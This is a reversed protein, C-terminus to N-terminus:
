GGPDLRERVEPVVHDGGLRQDAPQRRATLGPLQQDLVEGLVRRERRVHAPEGVVDGALPVADVKGRLTTRRHDRGVEVHVPGDMGPEGRRDRVPDPRDPPDVLRLVLDIQGQREALAVVDLVALPV